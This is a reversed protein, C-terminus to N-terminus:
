RDPISKDQSDQKSSDAFTNTSTPSLSGSILNPIQNFEQMERTKAAINSFPSNPRSQPMSPMGMNYSQISIDNNYRPMKSAQQSYYDEENRHKQPQQFHFQPFPMSNPSSNPLLQSLKQILLSQKAIKQNFSQLTNELM